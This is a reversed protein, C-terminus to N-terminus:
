PNMVPLGAGSRAGPDQTTPLTVRVRVGERLRSEVTVTGGVIGARERMGILGIGPSAESAAFGRGDDGVTMVLTRPTAQLEISITRAGGHKVANQVAEQAIRYLTLAQEDGVRDPWEVLAVGIDAGHRKTAEEAYARLARPLGLTELRAPHLDRAIDHVDLAIANARSAVTGLRAAVTGPEAGAALRLQDLEISLLALQQGVDDHLDRAVRSREKEQSTILESSLRHLQQVLRQRRQRARLLAFILLGQLAFAAAAALVERRYDRWLSARPNVIRAGPPAASPDLGWREMQAADLVYESIDADRVPLSEPDAGNFVQLAVAAVERATKEPSPLRGGVTGYGLSTTSFGFMPANAVAAVLTYADNGAFTQGAGDTMLSAAAIISDPPLAAVRQLITAIPQGTLDIIEARKGYLARVSALLERTQVDFAVPGGVVAIHKVAPLLDFAPAIAEGLEMSHTLGTSAPPRGMRALVKSRVNAFVIPTGSSCADRWRAAYALAPAGVAVIVRLDRGRYKRCHWEFLEDLYGPRDMRALDFGEAYIAMPGNIERVVAARFAAIFRTYAPRAVDDGELILAGRERPTGASGSPLPAAAAAPQPAAGAAGPTIGVAQAVSSGCALALALVGLAARCAGRQVRARTGVPPGM